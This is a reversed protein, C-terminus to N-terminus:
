FGLELLKVKNEEVKEKTLPYVVWFAWTGLAMILMPIVGVLLRIGATVYRVNAGSLLLKEYTDIGGVFGTINFIIAFLLEDIFATLLGLVAWAGILMGRQNKGTRVIFDDQVHSFIVPIQITWISGMAFGAIFVFVALDYLTVFFTLPILAICITVGGILYLKRADGVKKLIKLWIPVSVIGGIIMLALLITMIEEPVVLVFTAVYAVMSTMMTTAVGWGIGGLWFGIFSKQKLAEKTGKLFKFREYDRSYYRDIMLKDERAGFLLFIIAFILSIMSVIAAMITFYINDEGFILLPPVATGLAMAIMDFVGFYGSYKKRDIETRFKDARLMNGHVDSLTIFLDYLVLMILLWIFAPWPNVTADPASFVLIIIFCWPILGVVMWPFRRGWKRTWKFNRDTLFGVVPDNLSAWFTTILTAVFILTPDLGVKTHYYFYLYLGMTQVIITWTIQYMSFSLYTKKTHMPTEENSVEKSM